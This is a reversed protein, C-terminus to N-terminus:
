SRSSIAAPAWRCTPWPPPKSPAAKMLATPKCCRLRLRWKSVKPSTEPSLQLNVRSTMDVVVEVGKRVEKKFGAMEVTVSYHGPALDPFTFNGSENTQATHSVATTEETITVKANNVTGGSADTISGLLTGNVAQSYALSAGLLAMLALVSISRLRFM